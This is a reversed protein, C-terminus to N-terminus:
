KEGGSGKLWLLKVRDAGRGFCFVQGAGGGKARRYSSVSVVGLKKLANWNRGAESEPIYASVPIGAAALNRIGAMAQAFSGPVRTLAEYRERDPSFVATKVCHVNYKKLKAALDGYSFARANSYLNLGFRRPVRDLAKFIDARAFPEGGYLELESYGPDAGAAAKAIGELSVKTKDRGCDPCGNNCGGEVRLLNEAVAEIYPTKASVGALRKRIFGLDRTPCYSGKEKMCPHGQIRSFISLLSEKKIDGFAMPLYPCPLVRGATTIHCFISKAPCYTKGGLVKNEDMNEV